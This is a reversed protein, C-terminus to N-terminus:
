QNKKTKKKISSEDSVIHKTEHNNTDYEKKIIKKTKICQEDSVIHKTETDITYNNKEKKKKIQPENSNITDESIDKTITELKIDDSLKQTYTINIDTRLENILQEYINEDHKITQQLTEIQQFLPELNQILKKNKPINLRFISLEGKGM